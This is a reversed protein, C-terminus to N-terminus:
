FSFFYFFSKLPEDQVGILAFFFVVELWAPRGGRRGKLTREGALSYAANQAKIQVRNQGCRHGSGAVVGGAAQLGMHLGDLLDEVLELTVNGFTHTASVHEWTLILRESGGTRCELFWSDPYSLKIIDAPPPIPKLILLM